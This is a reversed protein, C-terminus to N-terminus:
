QRSPQPVRAPPRNDAEDRYGKHRAHQSPRQRRKRQQARTGHGHHRRQHRTHARPQPKPETKRTNRPQRDQPQQPGKPKPHASRRRTQRKKKAHQASRPRHPRQLAPHSPGPHPSHDAAQRPRGGSHRSRKKRGRKQSIDTAGAPRNDTAQQNGKATPKDIQKTTSARAPFTTRQQTQSAPPGHPPHSSHKARKDVADPATNRNTPPNTTQPTDVHDKNNRTATVLKAANGAVTPNHPRRGSHHAIPTEKIRTSHPGNTTNPRPSELTDRTTNRGAPQPEATQPDPTADNSRTGIPAAPKLTRKPTKPASADSKHPHQPDQHPKDPPAPEADTHGNLATEPRPAHRTKQRDPHTPAPKAPAPTATNPTATNHTGKAARRNRSATAIDNSRQTPPPGGNPQSPKRKAGPPPPKQHRPTTAKKDPTAPPPSTNRKSPISPESANRPHQYRTTGSKTNSDAQVPRTTAPGTASPTTHHTSRNIPPEEGRQNGPEPSQKTPPSHKQAPHNHM